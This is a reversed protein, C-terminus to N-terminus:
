GLFAFAALGAVALGAASSAPNTTTTARQAKAAQSVQLARGPAPAFGPRDILRVPQGQYDLVPSGMAARDAPGMGPASLDGLSPAPSGLGLPASSNPASSSRSGSLSAAATGTAYARAIMPGIVPIQSLLAVTSRTQEAARNAGDVARGSAEVSLGALAAAVSGRDGLGPALDTGAANFGNPAVAGGLNLGSGASAAFGNSRSGLSLGPGTFGISSDAVESSTGGFDVGTGEGEYGSM